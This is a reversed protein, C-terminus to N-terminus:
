QTRKVGYKSTDYIPVNIVEAEILKGKVDITFRSGVERLAYPVFAIGIFEKTTPSMTGSAVEGAEKGDVLVKYGHRAVGRKTLKFFVRMQEENGKKALVAEKGIYDVDKDMHMFPVFALSSELVHTSEDMDNGYLSYGAELRLTDRAGLGCPEAGNDVLLQWLETAKETLQESEDFYMLEAGDEGTYGTGSFLIKMGNITIWGARFRGPLEEGALKQMLPRAQPGQVAIMASHASQNDLQVDFGASHEQMWGWIKDLNGANCVVLWEDDTFKTIIVDDRFGANENLMFTYAAQTEKVTRMDRAALKNLFSESGSGRVWIRGMHSVDFIGVNERVAKHEKNISSYRVPMEWGAFDVTEGHAAHWEYLVTRQLETM